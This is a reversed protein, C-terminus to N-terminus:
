SSSVATPVKRSLVAALRAMQERQRFAIFEESVPRKARRLMAWLYGAELVMGRVVKPKRTMQYARRFLEWLFHNGQCYDRMGNNFIARIPGNQATGWKRHHLCSKEVFTRTKWGKMRATLVAVTDISGGELPVYGGIAEFCERRFVQCAGAVDEINAMRYDHRETSDDIYPTGVVGLRADAALKDLLFAFYDPAFTIDADLSAIVEYRLDHIRAQGANFAMVKGAFHREEREPVRVFEIWKYLAAYRFVIEDTGDTSGDSVIVWSLPLVTQAAVSRITAEIYEAENRAPTVIVYPM